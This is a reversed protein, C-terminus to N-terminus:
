AKTLATGPMAPRRRRAMERATTEEKAIEPGRRIGGEAVRLVNAGNAGNAGFAM